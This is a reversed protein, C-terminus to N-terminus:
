TCRSPMKDAFVASALSARIETKAQRAPNVTRARRETRLPCAMVAMPDMKVMQVPCVAAHLSPLKTLNAPLAGFACSPTPTLTPARERSASSTNRTKTSQSLHLLVKLLIECRFPPFLLLPKGHFLSSAADFAASSDIFVARSESPRVNAVIEAVGADIDQGQSSMSDLQPYLPAQTPASAAPPPSVPEEAAAAAAPAQDEEHPPQRSQTAAEPAPSPSPSPQQQEQVEDRTNQVPIPEETIMIPYLQSSIIPPPMEEEQHQAPPQPSEEDADVIVVSSETEAEEATTAAPEPEPVVESDFELLDQDQEPTEANVIIADNGDIAESLLENQQKPLEQPQPQPQSLGRVVDSYCLTRQKQVQQDHEMTEEEAEEPATAHGQVCENGADDDGDDGRNIRQSFPCRSM